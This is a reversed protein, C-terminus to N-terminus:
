RGNAAPAQGATQFAYASLTTNAELITPGHQPFVVDWGLLPAQGHIAAHLSVLAKRCADWGPMRLGDFAPDATNAPFLHAGSHIQRTAGTDIDILRM